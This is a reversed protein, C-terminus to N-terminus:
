VHNLLMLEKPHPNLYIQDQLYQVEFKNVYHKILTLPVVLPLLGQHYDDITTHLEQKDKEDLQKKFYGALHQLVNAHKRKPAPHRLAAFYLEEYRALLEKPVHSKGEAVLKGMDRYNKEHHALLLFKHQTHFAILDTLRFPKERLRQWRYHCFIRVIFNERLRPDNLRGEEEIPLNPMQEMLVRAFLGIGNRAAMGKESYVRVREMGCSPSDKKLIYGNLQLSKLQETKAQSFKLMAETHDRNTKTTVMRPAAPDGALHLSERPTGLGIEVEPCVPVWEVFQALTGTLYQDHKHGGDFRVNEGLLCTSIGLRLKIESSHQQSDQNSM